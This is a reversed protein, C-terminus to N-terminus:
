EPQTGDDYIAVIHGGSITFNVSDGVRIKVDDPILTHNNGRGMSPDDVLRDLPSRNNTPPVKLNPENPDWQGFSVTVNKERDKDDATASSASLAIGYFTLIGIMSIISRKMQKEEGKEFWNVNDMVFETSRAM